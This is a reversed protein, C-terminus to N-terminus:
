AAADRALPLPQAPNLTLAMGALHRVAQIVPALLPMPRASAMASERRPTFTAADAREASLSASSALAFGPMAGRGSSTSSAAAMASATRLMAPVIPGMSRATSLAPTQSAIDARLKEAALAAREM